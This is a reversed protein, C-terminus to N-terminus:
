ADGAARRVITVGVSAAGPVAGLKEVAVKVARAGFRGLVIGAFDEALAEVLQRDAGEAHARLAAAVAGYDISHGLDDTTGARATDTGIWLNVRIEQPAEREHPYVGVVTWVSLDKITVLDLAELDAGRAPAADGQGNDPAM